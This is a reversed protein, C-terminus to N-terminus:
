QSFYNYYFLQALKKRIKQKKLIKILLNSVHKFSILQVIELKLSITMISKKNIINNKFCYTGVM